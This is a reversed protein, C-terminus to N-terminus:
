TLKKCLLNILEIKKNETKTYIEKEKESKSAEQAIKPDKVLPQLDHIKDPQGGLEVIVSDVDKDNYKKIEEAKFILNNFFNDLNSQIKVGGM